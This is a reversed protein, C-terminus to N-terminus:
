KELENIRERWEQRQKKVEAYEAESLWGEAYKIAQYDTDVLRQKLSQIEIDVPIKVKSFEAEEQETIERVIGNDLIKMM